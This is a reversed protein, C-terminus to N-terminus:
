RKVKALREEFEELTKNREKAEEIEQKLAKREIKLLFDKMTKNFEQPKEYFSFMGSELVSVSASPMLKKAYEESSFPDKRGHVILAEKEPRRVGFKKQFTKFEEFGTFEVKDCFDRVERYDMSSFFLKKSLKVPFKRSTLLRYIEKPIGKKLKRKAGVLVTAAVDERAEFGQVLSNSFNSGVLVANDINEQGLIQKLAERNGEYDRKSVTPWFSITRYEEGFYNKQYRWIEPSFVGSVFILQLRSKERSDTLHLNEEGVRTVPTM